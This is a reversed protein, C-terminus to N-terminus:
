DMSAANIELGAFIMSIVMIGYHFYTDSNLCLFAFIGTALANERPSM